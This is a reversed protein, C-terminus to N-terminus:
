GSRRAVRHRHALAFGYIEELRAVNTAPSFLAQYRSRADARLQSYAESDLEALRNAVLSLAATDGPDIHFGSIGDIVLEPLAGVRTVIVPTGNGLAEAVVRGFPEEWLPIAVVARARGMLTLLEDHPMQPVWHVHGRAQAAEVEQAMPGNGVVVVPLPSTAALALVDLIGKERTLRGAFLLFGGEGHGLSPEPSVVNFKVHVREDPLGAQSLLERARDSLVIYADLRRWTGILEHLSTMAAVGATASRSDRYCAHRIGPLAIRHGNCDYCPQGDRFFTAAPCSLRYNRLTQVTAAGYKSAAYYVSPSLSPFTNNCHVVDPRVRRLLDELERKVQVNFFLQAGQRLSSGDVFDRNSKSFEVVDHGAETLIRAEASASVTEGGPELYDAHVVVIRM